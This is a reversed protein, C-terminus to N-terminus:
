VSVTDDGAAEALQHDPRSGLGVAATCLFWAPFNIQLCFVSDDVLNFVLLGTLLPVLAAAPTLPV